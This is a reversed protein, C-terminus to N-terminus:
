DVSVVPHDVTAAPAVVPELPSPAPRVMVGVGVPRPNFTFAVENPASLFAPPCAASCPEAALFSLATSRWYIALSRCAWLSGAVFRRRRILRWRLLRRVQDFDLWQGCRGAPDM